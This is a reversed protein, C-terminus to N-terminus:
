KQPPLADEKVYNVVAQYLAEHLSDAQAFEYKGTEPEDHQWIEVKFGGSLLKLFTVEINDLAEIVMLLQNADIDPQWWVGSSQNKDVVAWLRNNNLDEYWVEIGAKEALLKNSELTTM